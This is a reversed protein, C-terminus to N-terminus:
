PDVRMSPGQACVISQQSHLYLRVQRSPLPHSSSWPQQVPRSIMSGGEGKRRGGPNCPLVSGTKTQFVPFPTQASCARGPRARATGLGPQHQGFRGLTASPGRNSPNGWPGGGPPHPRGIPSNSRSRCVIPRSIICLLMSAPAGAQTTRLIPSCFVWLPGPSRTAHAPSNSFYSRPRALIWIPKSQRSELCRCGGKSIIGLSSM